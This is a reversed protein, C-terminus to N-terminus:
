RVSNTKSQVLPYEESEAGQGVLQIKVTADTGARKETGTVTEVTYVVQQSGAQKPRLSKRGSGPRSRNPTSRTRQSSAAGSFRSGSQRRQGLMTTASTPSALRDAGPTVSGVSRRIPREDGFPSVAKTSSGVPQEDWANAVTVASSTDDLKISPSRQSQTTVSGIEPLPPTRPVAPATPSTLWPIRGGNDKTEITSQADSGLREPSLVRAASILEASVGFVAYTRQRFLHIQKRVMEASDYDESAVSRQMCVSLKALEVGAQLLGETMRKLDKAGRFDERQICLKKATILQRAIAAIEPDQFMDFKLDHELDVHELKNVIGLEVLSKNARGGPAHSSYKGGGLYDIRGSAVAMNTRGDKSVWPLAESTSKDRPDTGTLRM